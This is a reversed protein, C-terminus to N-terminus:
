ILTDQDTTWNCDIPPGHYAIPLLLARHDCDVNLTEPLTLPKNSKTDQHGMIHHFQPVIPYLQIILHHIEQFMPYDDLIADRPYQIDSKNNIQEMVGKQNNCYVHIPQHYM